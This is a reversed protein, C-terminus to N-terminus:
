HLQVSLDRWVRDFWNGLQQFLEREASGASRSVGILHAQEGRYDWLQVEQDSITVHTETIPYIGFFGRENNILMMKFLPSLRHVKIEVKADMRPFYQSIESFYHRFEGAFRKNREQISAKYPAHEALTDVISPVPMPDSCDPVAIRLHLRKPRQRGELVDRLFESLVNYFTEGSYAAIDIEIIEATFARRLHPRLDSFHGLVLGDPEGLRSDPSAVFDFLVLVLAFIVAYSLYRKESVFQAVSPFIQALLSVCLLLLLLVRILAGKYKQWAARAIRLRETMQVSPLM